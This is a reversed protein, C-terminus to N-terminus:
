ESKLGESKIKLNKCKFLRHFMSKKKVSNEEGKKQVISSNLNKPKGILKGNRYKETMNPNSNKYIVRLGCLMGNQYESTETLAGGSSFQKWVGDKLGDKFNGSEIINENLDYRCFKGNLPKGQLEGQKSVLRNLYYGYYFRNTKLRIRKKNGSVWTCIIGENTKIIIEYNSIANGKSGAIGPFQSLIFVFTIILLKIQM